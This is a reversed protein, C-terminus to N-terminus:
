EMESPFVVTFKGTGSFMTALYLGYRGTPIVAGALVIKKCLPTTDKFWQDICASWNMEDAYTIRTRRLDILPSNISRILDLLANMDDRDHVEVGRIIVATYETTSKYIMKLDPLFDTLMPDPFPVAAGDLILQNHENVTARTLNM